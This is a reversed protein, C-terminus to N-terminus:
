GPGPGAGLPPGPSPPQPQGAGPAFGQMQMAMPAFGQQGPTLVMGAGHQMLMQQGGLQMAQQMLMQQQYGGQVPPM